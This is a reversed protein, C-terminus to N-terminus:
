GAGFPPIPLARLLSGAVTTVASVGTISPQGVNITLGPDLSPVFPYANPMASAPLLGALVLNAQIGQGVGEILYGGVNIPNILPFLSAPTPLNAYETNPGGIDGYGMDILVRLPPQVMNLLPQPLNLPRLLPLDQTPIMYYTTNGSGPSVPAVVASGIQEPTLSMYTPTPALHDYYLGAVANAVSLLNTPYRPFHAFGDYQITYIDTQYALDPTAGGLTENFGPIYLGVFREFLGGNPNNPNGILTFRLDAPNPPNAIAGTAIENLYNTVVTASQSFGFVATKTGAPQAAIAQKLIEVGRAVSTDFTLSNLGTLPWGQQPTTLGTPTGTLPAIRPAIYTDYVYNLYGSGPTPNGTGGMILTAYDAAALTATTGTATTGIMPRGFLALRPADLAAAVERQVMELTSSNFAEAASYTAAAARLTQVLQQHYAGVRAEVAHFEAGFEAFLASIASSVEDAGAAMQGTTSAAAALRAADLESRIRALTTTASGLAEPTVAFPSM